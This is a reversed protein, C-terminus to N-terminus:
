FFDRQSPRHCSKYEAPNCNMGDEYSVKKLKLNCSVAEFIKRGKDIRILIISTGNGDNMDPAVDNILGWFDGITLDAM